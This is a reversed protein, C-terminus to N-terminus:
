TPSPAPLRLFRRAREVIAGADAAHLEIGLERALDPVTTFVQGGAAVAVRDGVAARVAAVAARLAPLSAPTTSSLALIDPPESKVLEVLDKTPVDAGLYRVDFGGSDLFDAIMRAGLDHREGAVCAVCATRGLRPESSLHSRLDALALRAVETARHEDAITIRGQEWLRGITHQAVQV